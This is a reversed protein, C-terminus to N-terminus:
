KKKEEIYAEDVITYDRNREEIYNIAIAKAEEKTTM